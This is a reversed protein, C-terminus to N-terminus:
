PDEHSFFGPMERVGCVFILLTTRSRFTVGLVTFHRSSFMPFVKAVELFCCKRSSICFPSFNM